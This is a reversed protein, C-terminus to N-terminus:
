RLSSNIYLRNFNDLVWKIVTGDGKIILGYVHIRVNELDVVNKNFEDILNNLVQSKFEKDIELRYLIRQEIMINSKNGKTLCGIALCRLAEQNTYDIGIHIYADPFLIQIENIVSKKFRETATNNYKHSQNHKKEYGTKAFNRRKIRDVKEIGM